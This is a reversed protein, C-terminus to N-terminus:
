KNRRKTNVCHGSEKLVQYLKEGWVKVHTDNNEFVKGKKNIDKQLMGGSNGANGRSTVPYPPDTVILDVKFDKAIMRDMISLANDNFIQKM